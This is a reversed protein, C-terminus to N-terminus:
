SESIHDPNNMGSGPTLFAGSGPDAVSSKQVQGQTGAPPSDCAELTFPPTSQHLTEFDLGAFFPHRKISLYAGHRTVDGSGLREEPDLRLLSEVLNRV